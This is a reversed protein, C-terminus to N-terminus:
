RKVLTAVIDQAAEKWFSLAHQQYEQNRPTIAPHRNYDWYAEFDCNLGYPNWRM